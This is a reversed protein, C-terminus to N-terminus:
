PDSRMASFSAIAILRRTRFISRGEEFMECGRRAFAFIGAPQRHCFLFEEVPFQVRTEAANIRILSQCPLISAVISDFIQHPVSGPIVYIHCTLSRVRADAPAQRQLSRRWRSAGSLRM